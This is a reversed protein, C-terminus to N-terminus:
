TAGSGDGRSTASTSQRSYIPRFFALLALVEDAALEVLSKDSRPSWRAWPAGSVMVSMAVGGIPRVYHWADPDVMEYEMPGSAILRAAIPPPSEGAGWGVGMEYTGAHIRMASPWPHPHFLADGPACPHIRHLQLRHGRWERWVRDVFPPHYDVKLSRWGAPTALLDPLEREADHLINLM